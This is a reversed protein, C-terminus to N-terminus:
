PCNEIDSTSSAIVLDAKVGLLNVKLHLANVMLGGPVPTQENIVLVVGPRITIATNPGLGVTVVPKGDIKLNAITTSGNSGTCDTTSQTDIVDATIDGLDLINTIQGLHVTANVVHAKAVSHAPSTYTDVSGCLVTAQVLGSTQVTCPATHTANPTAISGTDALPGLNVGLLGLANVGLNLAYARGTLITPSVVVSENPANCGEASPLNNADGSYSATWRYTGPVVATYFDSTYSANGSVTVKSTDYPTQSCTTDGPGYLNFTVTGTPANGGTLMATDFIDDGAPVNKSAQTTISTTAKPALVTVKEAPDTCSTAAIAKNNADGNYSAVWVYNGAAPSEMPPSYNGNGNVPVTESPGSAAGCGSATAAYLQFTLNGTPKYGGTLHATDQTGTKNIVAATTTLAPSAMTVSVQENIISCNSMVANNQTDGTYSAVFQYMGPATPVFHGSTYSGNGHVGVRSTLPTTSCNADNPGYLDFTISGTPSTGGKLLATDTFNTGVPATGSPTTSLDPTAKPATGVTVPESGCTTSVTNNNMDGSYAAVWQYTGAVTTAPSSGSPYTGNGSVTVPSSTYLATGSCNTSSPPYLNFTITGTAATAGSLTASDSLASGFTATVGPTATTLTPTAKMIAISSATIQGELTFWATGSSGLASTFNVTGSSKDTSIGSFSTNPGEYGYPGFPCGAPPPVFGAGGGSNTVQCAGDGDFAFPTGSGVGQLSVANVSSSSDNLVGILTDDSGDYPGQTGDSLVTVTGSPSIYILLACGTDFGLAPCENFPATPTAAGASTLFLGGGLVAAAVMLVPLFIGFVKKSVPGGQMTFSLALTM